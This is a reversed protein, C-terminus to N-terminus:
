PCDGTGYVIRYGKKKLLDLVEYYYVAAITGHPEDPFKPPKDIYSRHVAQWLERAEQRTLENVNTENQM